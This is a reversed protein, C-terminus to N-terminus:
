EDPTMVGEMDLGTDRFLPDGAEVKAGNAVAFRGQERILRGDKALRTLGVRVAEVNKEIGKKALFAQMEPATVTGGREVVFDFLEERSLGTFGGNSGRVPVTARAEFVVSGTPSVVDARRSPTAANQKASIKRMLATDVLELEIRLRELERTIGERMKRLKREGQAALLDSLTTPEVDFLRGCWGSLGRGTQQKNEKSDATPNSIWAPRPLAPM